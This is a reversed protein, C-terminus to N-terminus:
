GETTANRLIRKISRIYSKPGGQQYGLHGLKQGDASVIWVTPYSRVGFEDALASNQAKLDAPVPKRRPLDVYIPVIEDTAYAIMEDTEFVEANLRKCPPCWDSGTFKLLLPRGTEAADRVAAEYDTRWPLQNDTDAVSFVASGLILILAPLLIARLKM